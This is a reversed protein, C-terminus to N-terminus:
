RESQIVAMMQDTIRVAYVTKTDLSASVIGVVVDDSRLVGGGSFGGAIFGGCKFYRDYVNNIVGYTQYQTPGDPLYGYNTDSPFGITRVNLGKMSSNGTYSACEIYGGFSGIDDNLICIAWDYERNHNELWMKPCYVTAWGTKCDEFTSSGYGKYCTWNKYAANNNDQDYVCHAATLFVKNGVLVGSGYNKEGVQNGDAIIKCIYRYPKGMKSPTPEASTAEVNIYPTYLPAHTKSNNKGNNDVKNLVKQKLEEMDVETVKGTKADYKIIKDEQELSDNTEINVEEVLEAQVYQNNFIINLTIIIVLIASMKLFKKM